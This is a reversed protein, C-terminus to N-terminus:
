PVVLSLIAFSGGRISTKWTACTYLRKGRQTSDTRVSDEEYETQWDVLNAQRRTEEWGITVHFNHRTKFQASERKSGLKQRAKRPSKFQQGAPLSLPLVPSRGKALRYLDGERTLLSVAGQMEGGRRREELQSSNWSPKDAVLPLKKKKKKRKEALYQSAPTEKKRRYKWADGYWGGRKRVELIIKGMTKHASNTRGKEGFDSEVVIAHHTVRKLVSAGEGLRPRLLNFRKGSM